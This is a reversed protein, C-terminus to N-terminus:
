LSHAGFVNTQNAELQGILTLKLNQANGNTEFSRAPHTVEANTM